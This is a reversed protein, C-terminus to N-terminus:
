KGGGGIFQAYIYNFGLTYGYEQNQPVFVNLSYINCKLIFHCAIIMLMALCRLLEFNSQREMPDGLNYAAIYIRTITIVISGNVM